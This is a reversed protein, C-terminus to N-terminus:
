ILLARLTQGPQPPPPQWSRPSGQLKLLSECAPEKRTLVRPCMCPSTPLPPSRCNGGGWAEITEPHHEAESAPESALAVEAEGVLHGRRQPEAHCHVRQRRQGSDPVATRRHRRVDAIIGERQVMQKFRRRASDISENPAAEVTAM